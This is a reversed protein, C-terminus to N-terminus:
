VPSVEDGIKMVGPSFIKATIGGHGRMANYGGTGLVEEIRSCPACIGTGELVAQGIRFRRSRLALLNIGSVVLNRRLLAPEIKVGGVLSSIVDLHEQQILTVSRKGGTIHRDGTLGNPTAEVEALPKMEGRREPRVGIWSLEGDSNYQSMLQALTRM